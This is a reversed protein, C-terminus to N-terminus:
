IIEYQYGREGVHKKILEIEDNDAEVIFEVMFKFRCEKLIMNVSNCKFGTLYKRLFIASIKNIKIALSGM